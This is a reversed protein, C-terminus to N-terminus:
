VCFAFSVGYTNARGGHYIKGIDTVCCFHNNGGTSASRLWWYTNGGNKGQKKIHDAQSKHSRWYEYQTGEQDGMITTGTSTGFLEIESLLWLTDNHIKVADYQFNWALKYVKIVCNRWEEPLTNLINNKLTTRCSSLVWSMRTSTTDDMKYLTELCHTMELTIGAKGTKDAKDDHNFGIIRMEINEGTTLPITITDGLNWGYTESVQDSTMNNASIEASVKSISEPTNEGFIRSIEVVPKELYTITTKNQTNEEVVVESVDPTKFGEMDAVSVTYTAPQLDGQTFVGNENTTGTYTQGNGSITVTAGNVIEGLYNNVTVTITSPIAPLRVIKDAYAGWQAKYSDYAGYKVYITTVSSPFSTSTVSPPTLGEMTVETLNTCGGFANDKIETVNEPITISTLALNDAFVEIEVVSLTSPIDIVNANIGKFASAGITQVGGALNLSQLSTCGEFASAGITTINSPIVASTLNKCDIFAKSRIENIESLDGSEVTQISGNVLEGFKPSGSTTQM